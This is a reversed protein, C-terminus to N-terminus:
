IARSSNVNDPGTDFDYIRDMGGNKQSTPPIFWINVIGGIDRCARPITPHQLILGDFFAIM